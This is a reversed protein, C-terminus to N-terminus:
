FNSTVHTSSTAQPSAMNSSSSGNLISATNPSTGSTSATPGGSTTPVANPNPTLTTNPNSHPIGFLFGVIGGFAFSAFAIITTIGLISLFVSPRTAQGISYLVLFAIAVLAVIGSYMFALGVDQSYPSINSNQVKGLM